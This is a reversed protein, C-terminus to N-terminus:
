RFFGTVYNQEKLREAITISSLPLQGLQIPVEVQMAIARCIGARMTLLAARM